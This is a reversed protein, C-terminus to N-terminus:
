LGSAENCYYFYPYHLPHALAQKRRFEPVERQLRNTLSTIEGVKATCRPAVKEEVKAWDL